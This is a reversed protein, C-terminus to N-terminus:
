VLPILRLGSWCRVVASKGQSTITDNGLSVVPNQHQDILQVSSTDSCGNTDTVTVLYFGQVLSIATETTQGLPDSWLYAYPQVGGNVVAVATGNAEGACNPGIGIAQAALQPRHFWHHNPRYGHLWKQDSAKVTFIGPALVLQLHVLFSGSSWQYHIGPLVESQWQQQRETLIELFVACRYQYSACTTHRPSTLVINELKTCGNTDTILVSYSGAVLGNIDETQASFAPGTWAYQYNQRKRWFVQLDIVAM